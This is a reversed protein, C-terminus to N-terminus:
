PPFFDHTVLTLINLARTQLTVKLQERSEIGELGNLICYHDLIFVGFDTGDSRLQYCEGRKRILATLESNLEKLVELLDVITCLKAQYGM